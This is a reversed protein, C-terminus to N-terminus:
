PKLAASENARWKGLMDCGKFQPDIFVYNSQAREIIWENLYGAKKQEIAALKIKSFDQQLNAKHPPTRTDLRLIKYIKEGTETQFELPPTIGLPKLSDVAFYVDPDLDAIEFFTNGSKPNSIRGNNTQSQATKSSYTRVAQDFSLKADLIQTRISDLRVKVIEEDEETIVAKILIHRTHFTNGRRELLQILHFGFSSEVVQSLENVELRYAAEEFEQVFSGRKQWGLDGGLRASGPDDSFSKALVAFDEGAEIRSKLGNLKEIALKRQEENVKPQMVIESIEVESNFYPLSDFPIKDFFTKVEAPTIKIDQLIKAQMKETLMQNRMDDRMDTKVENVSKGYYEQFFTVDGNMMGLIEDIRRGLQAEVEEDSLIITTDQKAEHALLSKLMLNDLINCKVDAPLNPNASKQYAYFEEIDSWLIVENGVQSVVKDLIIPQQAFISGSGM